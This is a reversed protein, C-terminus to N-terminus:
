SPWVMDVPQRLALGPARDRDNRFTQRAELGEPADAMRMTECDHVNSRPAQGDDPMAGVRHVRGAEPARPHGMAAADQVRDEGAGAQRQRRVFDDTKTERPIVRARDGQAAAWRGATMQSRRATPSGACIPARTM